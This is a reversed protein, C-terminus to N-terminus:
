RIASLSRSIRPAPFRSPASCDPWAWATSTAPTEPAPGPRLSIWLGHAAYAVLAVGLVRTVLAVPVEALFAVGFPAAAVGGLLLPLFKRPDLHRWHLCLLLGATGLGLIAVVAVAEKVDLVLPLIAMTVLGFGFGSTGQVLSALLVALLVPVLATM